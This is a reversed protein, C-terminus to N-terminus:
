GKYGRFVAEQLKTDSITVIVWLAIVAITVPFISVLLITFFADFLFPTDDLFMFSETMTRMIFLFVIALIYSLFFLAIKKTRDNNVQIITGDGGRFHGWPIMLFGYFSFAFMIFIFFLVIGYMIALSNDAKYGTPTVEFVGALAGGLSNQCNIGYSYYGRDNFYEGSINREWYGNEQQVSTGEILIEGNTGAMYFNCDVETDNILKGNSTNYLFFYYTHNEGVKITPQQAEVITYGEPFTEVITTPQSYVNTLMFLFMFLFLVILKKAM